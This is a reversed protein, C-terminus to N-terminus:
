RAAPSPPPAMAMCRCSSKLRRSPRAVVSTTWKCACLLNGAVNSAFKWAIAGTRESITM